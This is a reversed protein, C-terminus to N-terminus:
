DQKQLDRLRKVKDHGEQVKQKQQTLVSLVSQDLEGSNKDLAERYAKLAVDEGFECSSLIAKRDRATIASKIDMWVRYLKGSLLTSDKPSKADAPLLNELEKAFKNSQESFETFMMKLDSDKTEGAATKYGEYRDNNIVILDQVVDITKENLNQM